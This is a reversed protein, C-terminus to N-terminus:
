RRLTTACAQNSATSENGAGDYAAVAYCYTTNSKLAKDSYATATLTAVRKGDRYVFYGAVALNDTAAGWGLNIQSRSAAAATLSTPATPATTDSPPTGWTASAMLEPASMGNALWAQYLKNGWDNSHNEDRLFEAYERSLTQYYLRIEAYTAGAPVAYNTDDWYSGDAYAYGVPPSQIATFNANTFGRPPIRNDAYIHNNM